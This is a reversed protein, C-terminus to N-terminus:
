GLSEGQQPDAEEDQRDQHPEVLEGLHHVLVPGGVQGGLEVVDEGAARLVRHVGDADDLDEGPEDDEDHGAEAAQEDGAPEAADDEAQQEDAAVAVDRQAVDAQQEARQRQEARPRPIRRAEGSRPSM